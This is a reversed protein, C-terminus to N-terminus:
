LLKGLTNLFLVEPLNQKVFFLVFGFGFWVVFFSVWCKGFQHQGVLSARDGDKKEGLEKQGQGRVKINTIQGLRQREM